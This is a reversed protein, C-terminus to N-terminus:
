EIGWPCPMKKVEFYENKLLLMGLILYSEKEKTHGKYIPM